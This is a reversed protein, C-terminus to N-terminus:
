ERFETYWYSSSKCIKYLNSLIDTM